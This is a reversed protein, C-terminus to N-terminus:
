KYFFISTGIESYIQFISGVFAFGMLVPYLICLIPTIIRWFKFLWYSGWLPFLHTFFKSNKEKQEICIFFLNPWTMVIFILVPWSLSFELICFIKFVWGTSESVLSSCSPYNVLRLRARKLTWVLGFNRFAKLASLNSTM